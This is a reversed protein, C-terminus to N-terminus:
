VPSDSVLALTVTGRYNYKLAHDFNQVGVHVCFDIANLASIQKM